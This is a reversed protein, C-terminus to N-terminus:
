REFSLWATRRAAALTVSYPDTLKSVTSEWLGGQEVYQLTVKRPLEISKIAPTM